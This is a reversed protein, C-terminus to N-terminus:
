VIVSPELFDPLSFKTSRAPDSRIPFVPAVPLVSFSAYYILRDNVVSPRQILYSVSPLAKTFKLSEFSVNKKFSANPPLELVVKTHVAEM